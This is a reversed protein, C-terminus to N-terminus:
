SAEEYTGKEAWQTYYATMEDHNIGKRHAACNTGYAHADVETQKRDINTDDGGLEATGRLVEESSTMEFEIDTFLAVCAALSAGSEIM